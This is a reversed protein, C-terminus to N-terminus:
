GSGSSAALNGSPWTWRNGLSLNPTLKINIRKANIKIKPEIKAARNLTPTRAKRVICVESPGDLTRM